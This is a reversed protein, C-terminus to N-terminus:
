SEDWDDVQLESDEGFSPEAAMIAAAIVGDSLATGNPFTLVIEHYERVSYNVGVTIM